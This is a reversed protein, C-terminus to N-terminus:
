HLTASANESGGRASAAIQGSSELLGAVPRRTEEIAGGQEVASSERQQSMAALGSRASAVRAANAQIQEDLGRLGQRMGAIVEAVDGEHDVAGTLDGTAIRRARDIVQDIDELRERLLVQNQRAHGVFAAISGAATILVI